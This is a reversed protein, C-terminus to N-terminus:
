KDESEAAEAAGTLVDYKEQVDRLQALENSLERGKTEHKKLAARVIDARVYGFKRGADEFAKWGFVGGLVFGLCFCGIAWGIM